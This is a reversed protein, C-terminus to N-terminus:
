CRQGGSGHHGAGADRYNGPPLAWAAGACDLMPNFEHLEEVRRLIERAEALRPSKPENIELKAIEVM